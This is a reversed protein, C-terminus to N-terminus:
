KYFAGAGSYEGLVLGIYFRGVVGFTQNELNGTMFWNIKETQEINLDRM